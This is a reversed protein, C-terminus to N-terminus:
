EDIFIPVEVQSRHLMEKGHWRDVKGIGRVCGVAEDYEERKGPDLIPRSPTQLLDNTYFVM